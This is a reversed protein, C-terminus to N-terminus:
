TNAAETAAQRAKLRTNLNALVATVPGFAEVRGDRLILLKDVHALLSKRHTVLLVTMGRRKAHSLASVLAQQGAEDLNADPEDLVLLKPDGYLARALGIRQRQGVSLLAGGDGIETDYGQPLRLILEHAGAQQAAEVISEPQADGQFRAINDRISGAFLEVDQPLYGIFRGLADRSWQHADAGDLRVVGSSLPRVGLILRMLTSKGSGSPGVVAVSEGAGLRFSVNRVVPKEVCPIAYSVQELSLAGSPDPLVMSENATVGAFLEELRAYASRADSLSKWSAIAAEFPSLARGALIASAIIAGITIEGHIALWAALATVLVQLALRAFKTVGQIAASRNGALTQLALADGNMRQWRGILAGSMGMAQTVEANRTASELEQMSRVNRVQAKGLPERLAAEGIWALAILLAAGATVLVGLSVDVLFLCAIFLVSWPADLLAVLANGSAFQRLLAADRMPQAGKTGTAAQALILPLAEETVQGYLFDAAGQLIMSRLAQLIGAAAFMLVVIITLWFLTAMNGTNVVRDMVQLAFISMPLILLNIFCSVAATAVAVPRLNRRLEEFIQCTEAGM